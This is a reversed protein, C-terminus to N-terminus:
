HLSRRFWNRWQVAFPAARALSASGPSGRAGANRRSLSRAQEPTIVTLAGCHLRQGIQKLAWVRLSGRRPLSLNVAAADTDVSNVAKEGCRCRRASRKGRQRRAKRAGAQAKLAEWHIAGLVQAALLPQALFARLLNADTLASSVGAYVTAIVPGDADRGEIAVVAREAPPTVRFRYTM